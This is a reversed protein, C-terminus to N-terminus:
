YKFDTWHIIKGTFDNDFYNLFDEVTDFGDNVSLQIIEKETLIRDDIFICYHNDDVSKFEIKQESVVPVRPAIRYMNKHRVAIFFDIMMGVKWRNKKDERITHIKPIAKDICYYFDLIGCEYMDTNKDYFFETKIFNKLIKEVFMTPKGHIETKFGLIM